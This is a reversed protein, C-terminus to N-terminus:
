NTVAIGNGYKAATHERKPVSEPVVPQPGHAGDLLSYNKLTNVHLSTFQHHMAMTVRDALLINLLETM